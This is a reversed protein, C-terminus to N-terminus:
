PEIGPNPKGHSNPALVRLRVLKGFLSTPTVPVTLSGQPVVVSVIDHGSERSPIGTVQRKESPIGHPAKMRPGGVLQVGSLQM